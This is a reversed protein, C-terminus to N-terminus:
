WVLFFRGEYSLFINMDRILLFFPGCVNHLLSCVWWSKPFTVLGFFDEKMVWFFTWTEFLFFFPRCVNYLVLCVGWFKPFTVLGFRDGKVVCFFTLRGFLLLLADAFTTCWQVPQVFTVVSQFRILSLGGFRQQTWLVNWYERTALSHRPAASPRVCMCAKMTKYITHLTFNSDRHTHTHYHPPALTSTFNPAYAIIAWPRLAYRRRM